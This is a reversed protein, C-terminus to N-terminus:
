PRTSTPVSTRSPTPTVLQTPTLSIEVTEEVSLTSEPVLESTVEPTLSDLASNNNLITPFLVTLLLVIIAFIGAIVAGIIAARVANGGIKAAEKTAQATIITIEKNAEIERQSIEKDAEIAMEQAKLIADAESMKNETTTLIDTPALIVPQLQTPQGRFRNLTFGGVVSFVASIALVLLIAPLNLIAQSTEDNDSSSLTFSFTPTPTSTTLNSNTLEITSTEQKTLTEQVTPFLLTETNTPSISVDPFFFNDTITASLGNWNATVRLIFWRNNLQEVIRADPEECVVDGDWLCYLNQLEDNAYSVNNQADILEFTLQLDSSILSSTIDDDYYVRASFALSDPSSPPVLEIRLPSESAAVQLSTKKNIESNFISHLVERTEDQSDVNYVCSFEQRLKVFQATNEFVMVCVSINLSQLAKLQNTFSVSSCPQPDLSGLFIFAVKIDSESAEPQTLDEALKLIGAEYSSLGSPTLNNLPEIFGEISNDLKTAIRETKNCSDDGGSVRLSRWKWTAQNLPANIVSEIGSKVIDLRSVGNVEKSMVSSTDVLFGVAVTEPSKQQSNFYLLALFIVSLILIFVRYIFRISSRKRKEKESKKIKGVLRM